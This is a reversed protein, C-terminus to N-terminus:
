QGEVVAKDEFSERLRRVVDQSLNRDGAIAAQELKARLELPMRLSCTITTSPAPPRKHVYNM